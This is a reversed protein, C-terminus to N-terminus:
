GLYNILDKIENINNELKIKNVINIADERTINPNDYWADQIANLMKGVIPGRKIGMALIDDGNIPLKNNSKDIQTNLREIRQKVLEIQNPMASEDAHSINDAHILDLINELNDGVAASFKRLSKDSLQSTDDEGHKLAMHQGVGQAVADILEGPYKLRTMINRVMEESAKEHGYFHVSGDPTVTRTLVKGIDHFLAMLRTKLDPPTKSLVSMTHKFVDDKHHKNQIMGIADNFEPLIYNLIGTIKLLRIGETPRPSILIKNLEDSIREKSITNIIHANKKMARLTEGSIKFGYKSSFRVIRLLRLGDDNLTVDPNTPTRIIGNNIDEIGKGTLDIIEDNSINKMLTNITIDRRNVEDMLDGGVVDPNRDGTKYKEKRPAVFELDISPLGQKNNLLSLKATGFRPYIVPNSGEKFNGLRNGLWNAFDIGATIGGNVVFDLDKPDKGMIEDRVFGGVGFLKNEWETNKIINKLFLLVIQENTSELLLLNTM